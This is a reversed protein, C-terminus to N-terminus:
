GHHEGVADAFQQPPSGACKPGQSCTAARRAARRGEVGDPMRYARSTLIAAGRMWNSSTTATILTTAGGALRAHRTEM